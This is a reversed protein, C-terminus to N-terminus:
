PSEAFARLLQARAELQSAKLNTASVSLRVHTAQPVFRVHGGLELFGDADSITLIPKGRTRELVAAIRNYSRSVFVVHCQAVEDISRLRVTRIPHEGVSEGAVAVDLESNIPDRVFTGVILPADKAAFAPEPWTIFRTLNLTFAAYVSQSSVIPAAARASGRGLDTLAGVLVLAVGLAPPRCRLLAM